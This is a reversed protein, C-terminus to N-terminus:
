WRGVTAPSAPRTSSSTAADSCSSRTACTSSTSSRNLNARLDGIAFAHGAGLGMVVDTARKLILRSGAVEQVAEKVRKGDSRVLDTFRGRADPQGQILRVSAEPATVSAVWPAYYRRLAVWVDADNTAVELAVGAVRLGLVHTASEEGVLVAPLSV